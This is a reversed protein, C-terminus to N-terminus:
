YEWNNEVTCQSQDSANLYCDIKEFDMYLV